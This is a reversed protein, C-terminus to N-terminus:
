TSGGTAGLYGGREEVSLGLYLYTVGPISSRVAERLDAFARHQEPASLDQRFDLTAVLLADAPGLQPSRLEDVRAVRTDAEIIERARALTAASAREGTLLSRTERALLFATNMLLGGISLSAVGDAWTLGFGASAAVGVLAIVLGTLAAGDLLVAFTSPDKSRRLATWMPLDVFRWRMERWAVAFPLGEFVMSLGIIVFNVWVSEIPQPHQIKEIGEYIAFTDGLTFILLAVVFSWLYLELGHVFGDATPLIRSDPDIFNRQARDPPAGDEGRVSTLSALVVRVQEDQPHTLPGAPSAPKFILRHVHLLQPASCSRSWFAASFM